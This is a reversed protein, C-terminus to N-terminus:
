STRGAICAGTIEVLQWRVLPSEKRLCLSLGKYRAAVYRGTLPGVLQDPNWATQVYEPKAEVISFNFDHKAHGPVGKMGGWAVSLDIPLRSIRSDAKGLPDIAKGEWYYPLTGAWFSMITATPQLVERLALATAINTKAADAQYVWTYGVIQKVFTANTVACLVFVGCLSQIFPVSRRGDPLRALAEALNIALGTYLLVLGPVLQRWYVWPDGGVYIQYVVSLAFSALFAAGMLRRQAFLSFLLAAVFIAVGYYAFFRALFGLGNSLRLSWSYGDMKLTYTNPLLVGYFHLRWAFHAWVMAVIAVSGAIGVVIARQPAQRLAHVACVALLPMLVIFGDPRAFYAVPVAALMLVLGRVGALRGTEIRVLVLAAGAALASLLSVEMGTLSWYQLPYFTAMLMLAAGFSLTRPSIKSRGDVLWAERAASAAMAITAMMLGMGTIQIALPAIHKGFLAITGAMYVTWLPNTYGEVPEGANWVLGQGEVLHLAYRMSLMEDDFLSFYPVGDFWFVTRYIFIVAWTVLIVLAVVFFRDAALINATAQAAM